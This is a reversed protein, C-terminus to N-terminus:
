GCAVGGVVNGKGMVCVWQVRRDREGRYVGLRSGLCWHYKQSCTCVLVFLQSCICIRRWIRGREFRSGPRAFVPRLHRLWVCPIRQNGNDTNNLDRWPNLELSACQGLFPSTCIEHLSLVHRSASSTPRTFCRIQLQVLPQSIAFHHFRSSFLQHRKIVQLLTVEAVVAYYIKPETLQCHKSGHVLILWADRHSGPFQSIWLTEKTLAAFRCQQVNESQVHTTQCNLLNSHFWVYWLMWYWLCTSFICEDVVTGVVLIVFQCDRSLVGAKAPALKQTRTLANRTLPQVCPQPTQM